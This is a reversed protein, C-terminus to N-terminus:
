RHLNAMVPLPLSWRRYSTGNVFKSNLLPPLAFAVARTPDGHVVWCWCSALVGHQLLVVPAPTTAAPQPLRFLRLEVGDATVATHNEVPFGMERVFGEFTDSPKIVVPSGLVMIPLFLLLLSRM